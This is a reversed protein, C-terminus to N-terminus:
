INHSKTDEESEEDSYETQSLEAEQAIDRLDDKEHIPPPNKRLVAELGEEEQAIDRLDDKEHIPPPNKRLVAELGEQVYLSYTIAILEM